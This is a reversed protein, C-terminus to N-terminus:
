PLNRIDDIRHDFERDNDDVADEIRGFEQPRYVFVTNMGVKRAARLDYPHSAVMAARAPEVGLYRCTREYVLPEPKFAGFVEATLVADWELRETKFLHVMTSMDTNSLSAVIAERRIRRLGDAVDPWPTLRKWAEALERHHATPIPVGLETCVAALGETYADQM